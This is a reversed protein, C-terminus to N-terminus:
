TDESTKDEHSSGSRATMVKGTTDYGLEILEAARDFEYAKCASRPIDIHVDPAYTALKMSSIANQMTEFASNMLDFMGLDADRRSEINKQITNQIGEQISDLFRQVTAHRQLAKGSSPKRDERTKDPVAVPAHVANLNVAITLDTMDKFTPAIPVPNLLGGDLLTMGRYHHPTFVTPIAISARIADFLPGKTLWVERRRDLDCAVATYTMPLEEINREGVMKRLADMLRDGKFLGQSSFALDLFRIVDMTELALVWQKYSELEGAAYIGGVLAGMSAGAISEIRYGHEELWEIVGIHALGRAAGSGLVLSVTKKKM